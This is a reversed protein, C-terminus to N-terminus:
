DALPKSRTLVAVCPVDHDFQEWGEETPYEIDIRMASPADKLADIVPQCRERGTKKLVDAGPYPSDATRNVAFVALVEADHEGNCSRERYTAEVRKADETVRAEDPKSLCIGADRAPRRWGNEKIREVRHFTWRLESVDARDAILGPAASAPASRVVVWVAGLLGIVLLAGVVMSGVAQPMGKLKEPHTSIKYRSRNGSFFAILGAVLILLWAAIKLLVHPMSPAVAFCVVGLVAAIVATHGTGDWRRPAAALTDNNVSVDGTNTRGHHSLPGHEHADPVAVAAVEPLSGVATPPLPVRNQGRDPGPGRRLPPVNPASGFRDRLVSAAVPQIVAGAWSAEVGLRQCEEMLISAPVNLEEALQRVTTETM